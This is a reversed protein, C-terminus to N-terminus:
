FAKKENLKTGSSSFYDSAVSSYKQDMGQEIASHVAIPHSAHDRRSQPVSLDCNGALRV